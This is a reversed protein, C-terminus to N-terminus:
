GDRRSSMARRFTHTPAVEAENLDGFGIWSQRASSIRFADRPSISLAAIAFLSSSSRMAIDARYAWAGGSIKDLPNLTPWHGSMPRLSSLMLFASDRRWLFSNMRFMPVAAWM